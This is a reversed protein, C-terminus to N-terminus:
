HRTTLMHHIIELAKHLAADKGGGKVGQSAQAVGGRRMGEEKEKNARELLAFLAANGGGEDQMSKNYATLLEDRSMPKNFMSSFFGEEKPRPPPTPVNGTPASSGRSAVVNRALDVVAPNYGGSTSGQAFIPLSAPSRQPGETGGGEGEYGPLNRFTDGATYDQSFRPAGINTEDFSGYTRGIGAGSPVMMERPTNYGEAMASYPQQSRALQLARETATPRFETPAVVAGSAPDTVGAAEVPRGAATPGPLADRQYAIATPVGVAGTVAAAPAAIPVDRGYRQERIAAPMPPREPLMSRIEDETKNLVTYGRPINSGRPIKEFTGSPTQVWLFKAEPALNVGRKGPLESTINKKLADFAKEWAMFSETPGKASNLEELIQKVQPASFPPQFKPVTAM